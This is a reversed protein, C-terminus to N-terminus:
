KLEEIIRKKIDDSIIENVINLRVYFDGSVGNVKYGKGKLRLPKITESNIPIKLKLEGDPHPLTIESNLIMEYPTIKKTYVLDNNM